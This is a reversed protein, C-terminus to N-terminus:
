TRKAIPSWDIHDSNPKFVPIYKNTAPDLRCPVLHLDNTIIEVQIQEDAKKRSQRVKKVKM